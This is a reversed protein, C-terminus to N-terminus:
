GPAILHLQQALVDSVKLLERRDYAALSFLLPAGIPRSRSLVVTCTPREYYTVAASSQPHRTFGLKKLPLEAQEQELKIRTEPNEALSGRQPFRSVHFGFFAKSFVFEYLSSALWDLQEIIRPFEEVREPTPFRVVQPDPTGCDLYFDYYPDDEALGFLLYREPPRPINKNSHYALVPGFSFVDSDQFLQLPGTSHGMLQLFEIYSPPIPQGVAAQLQSIEAPSCGRIEDAFSPHYQTIAQVVAQMRTETSKISM